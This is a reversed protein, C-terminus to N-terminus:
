GGGEGEGEEGGDEGEEEGEEGGGGECRGGLWEGVEWWGGMEAEGRADRGANNVARM